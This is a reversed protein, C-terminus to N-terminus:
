RPWRRTTVFVYTSINRSDNPTEATRKSYDENAKAAVNKTTSLEWVSLGSPWYAVEQYTELFGDFGPSRVGGGARFQLRDPRASALLLRRVLDHLVAAAEFRESWALLDEARVQQTPM